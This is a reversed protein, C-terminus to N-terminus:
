LGPRHIAIVRGVSQLRPSNLSPLPNFGRTLYTAGIVACVRILTKFGTLTVRSQPAERRWVEGRGGGCSPSCDYQVAHGHRCRGGVLPSAGKGRAGKGCARLIVVGFPRLQMPTVMVCGRGGRMLPPCRRAESHRSAPPKQEISFSDANDIVANRRGARGRKHLPDPPPPLPVDCDRTVRVPSQSNLILFASNLIIFHRGTNECVTSRRAARGEQSPAPPTNHYRGHLLGRPPADCNRTVRVPNQVRIQTQATPRRPKSYRRHAYAVSCSTNLM